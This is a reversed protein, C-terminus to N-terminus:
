KLIKTSPVKRTVDCNEKKGFIKYRYKAILNYVFDRLIKPFIKILIILKKQYGIIKLCEIIAGSKVFIMQNNENILIVHEKSKIKPYNKKIYNSEFNTIKLLNKKDRKSIWFALSNCMVCYGDIILVNKKM